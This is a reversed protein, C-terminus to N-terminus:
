SYIDSLEVLINENESRVNSNYLKSENSIKATPLLVTFKSGKGFESQANISGGQLEVIAKVLSLGVGTGETNRSLSKDVQKFRDFIMELHKEEIGIGNDKVSIEVFEKGDKIDVFIEDGKDTFKIANSILNLVIREIIETDCAIIKEEVDTDFIIKLGKSDTLTTVSMVIEEVVTVINNNSLNLKFFGAEIKSLDVINNILKSLRYSNQKISEIYKIIKDKKDDLSGNKCYMDFLQATSFIVNLPTKLEHSINVLFEGQVKNAIILEAARKGKEENQFILEKNAIVLEAARDAKEENQYALEKNAIVLEAARDAKEESQYALEKNAIVLEAAREAKEESQYALEKNAIILEAGHDTKEIDNFNFENSAIILKAVRSVNKM